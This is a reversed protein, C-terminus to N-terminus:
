KSLWQGLKTRVQDVAELILPHEEESELAARLQEKERWNLKSLEGLIEALNM